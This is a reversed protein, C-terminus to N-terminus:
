LLGNFQMMIIAILIERPNAPLNTAPVGVTERLITVYEPRTVLIGDRLFVCNAVLGLFLRDHWTAGRAILANVSQDHQLCSLMDCVLVRAPAPGANDAPARAATQRRSGTKYVRPM